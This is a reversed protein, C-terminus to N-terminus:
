GTTTTATTATATTAPATTTVAGVWTAGGTAVGVHFGRARRLRPVTANVEESVATQLNQEIMTEAASSLTGAAVEASLKSEQASVLAAILGDATKGQAVAIQALTQGNQLDARLQAATLGLYSTLLDSAAGGPLAGFTIPQPSTIMPGPGYAVGIGGPRIIETFPVGYADFGPRNVEATVLRTLRTLMASEQASSLKGASVAASLTSTDTSLLASVLGASTKGQAVAIEALTKGGQLDSRLQTISLGLYSAARMLNGLPGAIDLPGSTFVVGGSGPQAFRTVGTLPGSGVGAATAGNVLATIANQLNTEITTEQTSSLTGATVAASIQAEQASVMAAILGDATKGQAVAIQALTQGGRMDTLIQAASLGLYSEAAGLGGALGVGVSSGFAAPGGLNFLPVQGSALRTELATAQAQSLQGATV